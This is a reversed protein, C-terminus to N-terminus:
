GFHVRLKRWRNAPDIKSGVPPHSFAGRSQILAGVFFFRKMCSVICKQAMKLGQFDAQSGLPESPGLLSQHCAELVVPRTM